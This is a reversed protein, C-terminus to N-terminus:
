VVQGAAWGSAWAWQFNYGGLWGTVDVVEGIFYLGKVKNTELTKSSLEDCSVGGLTVEATRYGETTQPYVLWQHIKKAILSIEDIALDCTRKELIDSNFFNAVFNKPLLETLTNKLTTKTGQDKKNNLFDTIKINPSLDIEISEGSNWYSSIQLIAPGSLGKHTFLINEDFSAQHNSVRCFISIGRLQGFKQQDESNFVFPVLGARQPNIKLGFKKAIKYGFGTAGMTPISLGGTAIVLSQCTYEDTNTTIYFLNENKTINEITTHLQIKAQYKQCEDLLMNVIDKAKNDCFLQGLTKEHYPINYDNVMAIFDWQTYRSLASKMFHPNDALYRDAAINYNTFNCRGGGSMLIKKGIKNAHDLVLTKRARKAAEIACMLGAAGAGIIIVDYNNNQITM